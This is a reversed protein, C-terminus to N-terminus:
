VLIYIIKIYNKMSIKYTYFNLLNKRKMELNNWRLYLIMKLKGYFEYQTHISYNSGSSILQSYIFELEIRLKYLKKKLNNSRSNTTFNLCIIDM